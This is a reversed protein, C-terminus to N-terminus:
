ATLVQQGRGIWEEFAMIQQAIYQANVVAARREVLSREANDAQREAESLRRYLENLWIKAITKQTETM